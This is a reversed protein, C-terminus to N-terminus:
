ERKRQTLSSTGGGTQEFIYMGNTFIEVVLKRMKKVFRRFDSVKSDFVREKVYGERQDRQAKLKWSQAVFSLKVIPAFRSRRPCLLKLQM